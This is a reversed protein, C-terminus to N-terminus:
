MIQYQSLATSMGLDGMYALPCWYEWLTSVVMWGTTGTGLVSKARGLGRKESSSPRTGVVIHEDSSSSEGM